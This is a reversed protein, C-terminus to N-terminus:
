KVQLMSAPGTRKDGIYHAVCAINEADSAGNKGLMCINCKLMSWAWAVASLQIMNEPQSLPRGGTETLPDFLSLPTINSCFHAEWSQPHLKYKACMASSKWLLEM